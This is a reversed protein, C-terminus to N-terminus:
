GAPALWRSWGFAHQFGLKRYVHLAVDNTGDVSLWVIRNGTAMGARTAM